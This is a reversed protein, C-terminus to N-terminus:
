IRSILWIAGVAARELGDARHPQLDAKRMTELLDREVLLAPYSDM